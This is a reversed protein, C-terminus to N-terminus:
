RSGHGAADPEREQNRRLRHVADVAASKLLRVDSLVAIMQFGDERAVAIADWSGCFIGPITGAERCAEVVRRCAHRFDPNRIEGVGVGMTLTLDSPGVLLGDVGPTTAIEDVADVADPTEIQVMCFSTNNASSTSFSTERLAARTPGFSRAGAPSYRAASAAMAAEEPTDVLPVIVGAAGCDLAYGILSADNRAVRVLAPVGAADLAQLMSLMTEIGIPGHQTDVCVWDFGSRGIIEATFANPIACWGGLTEAKGILLGSLSRPSPSEKGSVPSVSPPDQQAPVLKGDNQPM